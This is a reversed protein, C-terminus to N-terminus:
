QALAEITEDMSTVTGSLTPHGFQRMRHFEQVRELSHIVRHCDELKSTEFYTLGDLDDLGSSHSLTRTGAQSVVM